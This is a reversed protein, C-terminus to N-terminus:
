QEKEEKKSNEEEEALRKKAISLLLKQTEKLDDEESSEDNIVKQAGSTAGPFAKSKDITQTVYLYFPQGAPVRIFVGDRAIADMLNQAYLEIAQSVGKAIGVKVQNEKASKDKSEESQTSNILTNEDSSKAEELILESVGEAAGKLFLAAYLRLKSYEDTEIVTGRLGASGDTIGYRGTKIDQAHDLAIAALPLEFGNEGTKTRWVLYWAKEAAIRNRQTVSAAKGHVETGAPIVIKGNHWVDETVLAIIPTEFSSSDVTNVLQCKILRGFPAYNRLPEPEVPKKRAKATYLNVPSISFAEKVAPKEQAPPEENQPQKLSNITKEHALAKELGVLKKTLQENEKDKEELEQEQKTKVAENKGSSLQQYDDRFRSYEREIDVEDSFAESTEKKNDPLSKYYKFVFAFIIVALFFLIFKGSPSKLFDLIKRTM